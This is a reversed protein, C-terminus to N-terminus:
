GDQGDVRCKRFSLDIGGTDELTLLGNSFCEMAFAITAGCSITDLGYQNCLQNGLAVAHM